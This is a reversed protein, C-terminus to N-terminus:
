DYKEKYQALEASLTNIEENLRIEEKEANELQAEFEVVKYELDSITYSDADVTEELEDVHNEIDKVAKRAWFLEADIEELKTILEDYDLGLLGELSDLLHNIEDFEKFMNTSM